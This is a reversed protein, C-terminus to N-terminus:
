INYTITNECHSLSLAMYQQGLTYFRKLFRLNRKVFVSVIASHCHIKRLNSKLM